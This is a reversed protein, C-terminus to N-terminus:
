PRVEPEPAAGPGAQLLEDIKELYGDLEKLRREIRDLEDFRIDGIAMRAFALESWRSLNSGAPRRRLGVARSRLQEVRDGLELTRGRYMSRALGEAPATGAAPAEAAAERRLLGLESQSSMALSDLMSEAAAVTSEYLMLPQRQIEVFGALRIRNMLSRVQRNLAALEERSRADGDGGDGAVLERLRRSLATIERREDVYERMAENATQLESFKVRRMLTQVRGRMELYGPYSESRGEEFVERELRVLQRLLRLIERREAALERLAEGREAEDLVRGYWREAEGQRELKESAYGALTQAEYRYPSSPYHEVLERALGLARENDALSLGSWADGLLAEAHRDSGRSVAEFMAGAEAFRGEEFYLYGLKLRADERLPENGDEGFGRRRPLEVLQEFVPIADGYRNDLILSLGILHRARVAYPDAASVGELLRRAEAFRESLFFERGALYVLEGDAGALADAFERCEDVATEHQGFVSRLYLLHRLAPRRWASGPHDRLLGRYGSVATDWAGDALAAEAAYFEVDDLDAYPYAAAVDTLQRRALAWDGAGYSEIAPALDQRLLAELGEPTATAILRARLEDARQRKWALIERQRQIWVEARDAFPALSDPLPADPELRPPDPDLLQDLPAGPDRGTRRLEAGLTGLRWLLLREELVLERTAQDLRQGYWARRADEYDPPAPAATALATWCGLAALLFRFRLFPGIAM